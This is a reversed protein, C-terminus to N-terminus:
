RKDIGEKLQRRKLRNDLIRNWAMFFAAVVTLIILLAQFIPELFFTWNQAIWAAAFVLATGTESKQM